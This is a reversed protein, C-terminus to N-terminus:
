TIRTKKISGMILFYAPRGESKYVALKAIQQNCNPCTLLKSDDSLTKIRDLYLRKLSGIGDKQYKFLKQNCQSCYINYIVTNGGRRKRYKDNKLKKM